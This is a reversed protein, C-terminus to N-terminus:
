FAERNSLVIGFGSDVYSIDLRVNLKEGQNLAYRLGAGAGSKWGGTDLDSLEDAVQATELFFTGGWKNYISYRYETQFSALDRDRYRGYEIGRLVDVGDPSSLEQFPIEGRTMRIYGKFALGTRDTISHYYNMHFQVARFIFDSGFIEEFYVSRYHIFIGSRPDNINDRSDISLSFGIGSRTGGEAGIVSDDFHLSEDETEIESNDYQYLVGTYFIKRIRREMLFSLNFEKSEYLEKDDKNTNNGIGYFHAPWLSGSLLANIHYNGSGFYLDPTIKACYQSNTTGYAIFDITSTRSDPHDPKIFRIALAGLQLGTEANGAIVPFLGWEQFEEKQETPVTEPSASPNQSGEAFLWGPLALVLILPIIIKGPRFGSFARRICQKRIL